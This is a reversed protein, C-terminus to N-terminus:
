TGERCSLIAPTLAEISSATASPMHGYVLQSMSEAVFSQILVSLLFDSLHVTQPIALVPFNQLRPSQIYFANTCLKKTIYTM